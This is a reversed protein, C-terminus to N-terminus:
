TLLLWDDFSLKGVAICIAAPRATDRRKSGASVSM